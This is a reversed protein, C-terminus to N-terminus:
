GFFAKLDEERLAYTAEQMKKSVVRDEEKPHYAQLVAEMVEKETQTLQNLFLRYAASTKYAKRVLARYSTGEQRLLKGYHVKLLEFEALQRNRVRMVEISTESESSFFNNKVEKDKMGTNIEKMASDLALTKTQMLGKSFNHIGAKYQQIKHAYFLFLIPMLVLWVSIPPKQIVQKAVRYAIQNEHNWILDYRIQIAEAM